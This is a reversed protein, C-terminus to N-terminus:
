KQRRALRKLVAVQRFFSTKASGPILRKGVQPVDEVGASATRAGRAILIDMWALRDESSSSIRPVTSGAIGAQSVHL